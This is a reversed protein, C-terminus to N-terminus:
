LEMAWKTVACAIADQYHPSTIIELDQENTMFGVELLLTAPISKSLLYLDNRMKLGRNRMSYKQLHPEILALLDAAYRASRGSSYHLIEFGNAASWGPTAPANAHFSVCAKVRSGFGNIYDTRRKLSADNYDRASFQVPVGAAILRRYAAMGFCLNLQWENIYMGNAHAPTRKGPTDFGHGVDIIIM